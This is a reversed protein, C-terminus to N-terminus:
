RHIHAGSDRSTPLRVVPDEDRINAANVKRVMLCGHCCLISRFFHVSKQSQGEGRSGASSHGAKKPQRHM